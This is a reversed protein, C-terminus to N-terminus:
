SHHHCNNIMLRVQDSYTTVLRGVPVYTFGTKLSNHKWLYMISCDTVSGTDAILRKNIKSRVAVVCNNIFSYTMGRCLLNTAPREFRLGPNTVPETWTPNTTSLTVCPCTKRRVRQNEATHIKGGPRWVKYRRRSSWYSTPSRLESM